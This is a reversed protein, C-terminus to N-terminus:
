QQNLEDAGIDRITGNPRADGDIDDMATAAPDGSDIADSAAMIRYYSPATAMASDTNLFMPTGSMNGSGSPPVITSGDFLTFTFTCVPSLANTTVINNSAPFASVCNVGATSTTMSSNDAITNFQFISGPLPDLQVGGSNAGTSGNRVFLTNTIDIQIAQLNVGGASNQSVICRRMTVKQGSTASIARGGLHGRLLVRELTLTSGSDEVLIGVSAPRGGTIELDFVTVVSGNTVKLIDGDTSRSLKAGPTAVITFDEGDSDAGADDVINGTIKIFSKNGGSSLALLAQTLTACPAAKTCPGAAGGESVYLADAEDVCAGTGLNCIESACDGATHENCRECTNQTNCVPANVATCDANEVCAVCTQTEVKCFGGEPCPGPESCAAPADVGNCHPANANAPDDCSLENKIKCGLLLVAILAIRIM